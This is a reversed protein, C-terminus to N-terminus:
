ELPRDLAQVVRQRFREYQEAGRTPPSPARVVVKPAQVVEDPSFQAATLDVELGGPLRNWYHFGQRSGDPYLVEAELLDGGFVDHLTLATVGCQGRSPNALSWDPVDVPDCTEVSWASRIAAEIEALTHPPV